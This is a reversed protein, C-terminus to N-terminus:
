EKLVSLGFLIQLQQQVDPRLQFSLLHEKIHGYVNLILKAEERFQRMQHYKISTQQEEEGQMWRGAGILTAEARNADFVFARLMQVIIEEEEASTLPERLAKCLLPALKPLHKQILRLNFRRKAATTVGHFLRIRAKSKALRGGLQLTEHDDDAESTEEEEAELESWGYTAKRREREFCIRGIQLRLQQELLVWLLDALSGEYNRDALRRQARENVASFLHCLQPNTASIPIALHAVQAQVFREMESLTTAVNVPSDSEGSARLWLRCLSSLNPHHSTTNDLQMVEAGALTYLEVREATSLRQEWHTSDLRLKAALWTRWYDQAAKWLTKYVRQKSAQVVSRHAYDRLLALM